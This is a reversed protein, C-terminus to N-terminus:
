QGFKFWRNWWRRNNYRLQKKRRATGLLWLLGTGLLWFTAPLPVVAASITSTYIYDGPSGSFSYGSLTFTSGDYTGTISVNPCTVGVMPTCVISNSFNYGDYLASTLFIGNIADVPSPNIVINVNTFSLNTVPSGPIRVSEEVQFSGSISLDGYGTGSVGGSTHIMSTSSDIHVIVASAIPSLFCLLFISLVKYAYYHRQKIM